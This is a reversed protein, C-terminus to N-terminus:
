IVTIRGTALISTDTNLDDDEFYDIQLKDELEALKSRYPSAPNNKAIDYQKRLDVYSSTPARDIYMNIYQFAYRMADMLHNDKDIPKPLVNGNKDEIYKYKSIESQFFYCTPHIIIKFQQLWRIDHEISGKGKPAGIINVGYQQFEIISKPESSDAVVQGNEVLEKTKKAAPENTLGTEYIEGCVYLLKKKFDIHFKAVAFQDNAFGWDLGYYFDSFQSADFDRTEWNTYVLNGLIGWNGLTYVDHWYKDTENELEAIDDPALFRNDKYTTKLISVDAHEVHQKSEDWLGTFFDEYIWHSKLIPNFLLIIKKKYESKGRLRKRIQKLDAREFETAEELVTYTFVGIKPRISKIREQDELGVFIAQAGNICEIAM